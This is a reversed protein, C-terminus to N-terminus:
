KFVNTQLSITNQLTTKTEKIRPAVHFFNPSFPSQRRRKLRVLLQGVLQTNVIGNPHLAGAKHVARM